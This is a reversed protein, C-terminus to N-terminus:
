RELAFFHFDSVQLLPCNTCFRQVDASTVLAVGNLMLELLHQSVLFTLAFSSMTQYSINLVSCTTGVAAVIM